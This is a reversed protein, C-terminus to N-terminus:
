RPVNKLTPTTSVPPEGVKYSNRHEVKGVVKVLPEGRGSEGNHEQAVQSVAM